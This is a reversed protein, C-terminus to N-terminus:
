GFQCEFRLMRLDHDVTDFKASLDLITPVFCVSMQGGDTALLRNSYIKTVATETSHLRRVNHLLNVRRGTAAM